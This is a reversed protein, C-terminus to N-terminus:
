SAARRPRQRGESRPVLTPNVSELVVKDDIVCKRRRGPQPPRVHGRAPGRRSHGATWTGRHGAAPGPRGRRHASGRHVRAGRRGDRLVEPVAQHPREETGGPNARASGPHSQHRHRDGPPPRRVRSDPRVQASGGTPGPRLRRRPRHHVLRHRGPFRDLSRRGAARHDDRDRRVGRRLHVPHELHRDPHLGPPPAQPRGPTAGVGGHGRPDEVAGAARGEGSVDRTISPNESKRAIKDIEDLYIIGTEARKVDFDAAQILKLSSTRWTKVSM